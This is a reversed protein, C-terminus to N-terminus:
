SSKWLSNSADGQVSEGETILDDDDDDDDDCDDQDEDGVGIADYNTTGAYKADTDHWGNVEVYNQKM